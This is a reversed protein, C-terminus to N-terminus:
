DNDLEIRVEGLKGIPSTKVKYEATTMNAALFRFTYTKDKYVVTAKYRQQNNKTSPMSM